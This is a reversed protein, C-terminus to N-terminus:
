ITFKLTAPTPDTGASNLARVLFTYSGPKLHQYTEPSHCSAYVPKSVKHHPQAPRVLACQFGTAEGTADFDFTATGARNSIKHQTIKTNPVALLKVTMTAPTPDPGAADLARVKFTYSGPSLHHYTKPSACSSFSATASGQKVLACQFGSTPGSAKFEFRASRARQSVTHGTITTNPPVLKFAATVSSESNMTVTCAGTGSCAGSWGTFQSDPLASATLHVVTGPAFAASCSSGCSIGSPSSTVTGTGTGTKSVGLAVVTTSTTTTEQASGAQNAATVTCSYDGSATPTYTSSDAGAIQDGNMKWVYSYTHPAQYLFSEVEDPAWSGACTLAASSSSHIIM